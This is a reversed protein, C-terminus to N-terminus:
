VEQLLWWGSFLIFYSRSMVLNGWHLCAKKMCLQLTFKLVWLNYLLHLLLQISTLLACSWRLLWAVSIHWIRWSLFKKSAVYKACIYDCRRAYASANTAILMPRFLTDYKELQNYNSYDTSADLSVLNLSLLLELLNIFQESAATGLYKRRLDCVQEGWLTVVPDFPHNAFTVSVVFGPLSYSVPQLTMYHEFDDNPSVSYLAKTLINCVFYPPSSLAMWKNQRRLQYELIRCLFKASVIFESIEVKDDCSHLEKVTISCKYAM